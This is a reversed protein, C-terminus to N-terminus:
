AERFWDSLGLSAGDPLRLGCVAIGGGGVCHGHQLTESLLLGQAFFSLSLVLGTLNIGRLRVLLLLQRAM